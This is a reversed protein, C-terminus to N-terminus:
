SELFLKAVSKIDYLTLDIPKSAGSYDGSMFQEFVVKERFDVSVDMYPRKVLAYDILKSPSQTLTPNTLNILFDQKSLEFLLQERPIYTNVQLKEGLVEKYKEFFDIQKTYVTFVFDKDTETLYDLLRGPDRKGPYLVGAYAFHPCTNNLAGDYLKVSSFDFGQPIVKMKERLVPEYASKAEQIPVAIVDAMKGWFREIYKFYFFHPETINGAYPDGCDAIWKKPFCDGMTRKAWATGWHIPHPFAITILLDVNKEKELIPKVKWVFEVDPYEILPHLIKNSVRKAFSLRKVNGDCTSFNWRLNADKVIIRTEKMFDSYDYNGLVAYVTVDHGEKSFQKALETARFSRPSKGPFFAWTIILIKM